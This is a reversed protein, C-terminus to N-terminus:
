KVEHWGRTEKAELAMASRVTEEGLDRERVPGNAEVAFTMVGTQGYGAPFAIFAFGGDDSPLLRYLYGHYPALSTSGEHVWAAALLPGAPSLEEIVVADTPPWHLGDRTGPSSDLRLTYELEGDGDRDVSAYVKQAEVLAKLTAITRLENVGIRRLHMERIGAATDFFWGSPAREIPVPFIWADSDVVLSRTTPGADPSTVVETRVSMAEAFRELEMEDQEPNGALLQEYDPGFISLLAARDRNQAARHLADVAAEPTAFVAQDAGPERVLSMDRGDTTSRQSGDGSCAGMALAIGLSLGALTRMACARHRTIRSQHTKTM